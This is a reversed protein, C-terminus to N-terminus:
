ISLVAQRKGPKWPKGSWQDSQKQLLVDSWIILIFAKLHDKLKINFDNRIQQLILGFNSPNNQSISLNSLLLNAM